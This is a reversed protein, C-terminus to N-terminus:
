HTLLYQDTNEGLYFIGGNIVETEMKPLLRNELDELEKEYRATIESKEENDEINKLYSHYFHDLIEKEKMYFEYTEEAWKTDINDLYNLVYQEIRKYGSPIKIIPSITFCYDSIMTSCSFAPINKIKEMFPIVIAGNILQLGISLIENKNQKGKYNIQINMVLWPKLPQKEVNEYLYTFKGEQLQSRFIQHLRPSGFHIWEGDEERLAPDSIFTLTAPEGQQGIKKIYEWYFPRNMLIRDLQETLTVTLKGKTNDQLTCKNLTFFRELYNHIDQQELIREEKNM